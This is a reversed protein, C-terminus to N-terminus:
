SGKYSDILRKVTDQHIKVVGKQRLYHLLGDDFLDRREQAKRGKLRLLIDFQMEPLKSMNPPIKAIVKCVFSGGTVNVPGFVTGVDHRFAEELYSASGIGEVQGDRGFDATTKVELKLAAAAKRLDGGMAKAKEVFEQSRQTVLRQARENTISQRIQHEVEGLEAQRAPIVDDLVAIALKNGATAVVNTVDGKKKLDFLADDFDVSAGIQPMPDGRGAKEVKVHIVNLQQAIQESAAPNKLLAAHTQDGLAQMKDYLRSKQLEKQIEGKAQEFPKLRAEEKEMTQIIHYGFETKVLDSIQKPKLSFAADEFAKVTQGRAVWDLDGGKAASVTDDSNKKALGAFDAGGRIQKLLDEAKKNLKEEEEKSKEMTKVLIHRVKVREPTRFNEKNANYFQLLQEDTMKLAEGAKQEDIVLMRFARKEQIRYSNRSATWHANIEDQSVKIESYVKATDLKVFELKIMENRARFEREVEEPTAVMGELVVGQLRRLSAKTRAQREFETVSTNNAALFQEYVQKGAFKGGEFLQPVMLQITRAVDADTVAYGLEKAFYANAREIVVQNVIQPAYVSILENPINKGRLTDNLGMQVERMTVVEKGIEAIIQDNARGGGSSGFGPILTIVMSIAVLMLLGGLLYRTSKERSRFLDFM